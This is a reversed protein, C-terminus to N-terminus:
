AGQESESHQAGDEDSVNELFFANSTAERAALGGDLAKCLSSSESKSKSVHVHQKMYTHIYTNRLDLRRMGTINWGDINM